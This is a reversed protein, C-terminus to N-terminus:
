AYPLLFYVVFAASILWLLPHVARRKSAIVQVFVYAIFGVGIGNIISYTFPM